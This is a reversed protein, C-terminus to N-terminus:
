TTNSLCIYWTQAILMIHFAIHTLKYFPEVIFLLLIVINIFLYPALIQQSTTTFYIALINIGVPFFTYIYHIKLFNSKIYNTNTLLEIINKINIYICVLQILGCISIVEYLYPNNYYNTFVALFTRIHICVTDNLFYVYNINNEVVYEEIQKTHIKEYIDYHFKYSAVSLSIIGIM